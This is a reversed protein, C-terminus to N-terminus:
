QHDQQEDYLAYIVRMFAIDNVQLKYIMLLATECITRSKSYINCVM